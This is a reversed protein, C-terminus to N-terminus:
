KNWNKQLQKKPPSKGNVTIAWVNRNEYISDIYIVVFVRDFMNNESKTAFRLFFIDYGVHHKSRYTVKHPIKMIKKKRREREMPIPSVM